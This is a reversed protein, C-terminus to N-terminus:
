LLKKEVGYSKVLQLFYFNFKRGNDYVVHKCCPYGCFWSKNVLRAVKQSTKEFYETSVNLNSIKSGSKEVVPLEVIEFWNTAPDMMTLSMFDVGSGNKIKLVCPGILDVCLVKWPTTWSLKTPLKSYM